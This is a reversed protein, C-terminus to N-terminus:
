LNQIRDYNMDAVARNHAVYLTRLKAQRGILVRVVFKSKLTRTNIEIDLRVHSYKYNGGSRFGLNLYQINANM